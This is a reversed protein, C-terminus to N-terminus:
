GDLLYDVGKITEHIMLEDMSLTYNEARRQLEEAPMGAEELLRNRQDVLEERTKRIVTPREDTM